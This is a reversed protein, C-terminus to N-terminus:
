YNLANRVQENNFYLYVLVGILILIAAVLLLIPSGCLIEAAALAYSAITTAVKAAEEALWMAASRLGKAGTEIATKGVKILALVLQKSKSIIDLFVTKLKNFASMLSTKITTALEMAKAKLEAFKLKVSSITGKISLLNKEFQTINQGNIPKTFYNYLDKYPGIVSKGVKLLGSLGLALASVGGVATLTGGFLLQLPPSLNEIDSAVVNLVDCFTEMAPVLVPLILGGVMRQLYDTAKDVQENLGAWSNKYAENVDQGYKMNLAQSLVSARTNADMEKFKDSVEDASVGMVKALDQTSLKLGQLSRSNARGSLTIQNFKQAATEVDTGAVFAAASIGKFASKMTDTNTVGATSMGIFAERVKGASRGTASTMESVMGGYANKVENVTMVHGSMAVGLRTMSDNYSGASSAASYMTNAIGAGAVGQIAGELLNTSSSAEEIKSNTEDTASGVEQIPQPDLDSITNNWQQTSDDAQEISSKTNETVSSVENLSTGDINNLETNLNDASTGTNDLETATEGASAGVEELSSSASSGVESATIKVQELANSLDEVETKDAHTEVKLNLTNEAM